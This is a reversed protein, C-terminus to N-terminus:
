HIIYSRCVSEKMKAIFDRPNGSGNSVVKSAVPAASPVSPAFIQDRFLYVAALIVGVALVFVDSNSQAMVSTVFSFLSTRDFCVGVTQRIPGGTRRTGAQTIGLGPTGSTGGGGGADGERARQGGGGRVWVVTGGGAGM